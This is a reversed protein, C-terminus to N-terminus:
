YHSVLEVNVLVYSWLIYILHKLHKKCEFIKKCQVPFCLIHFLMDYFIGPIKRVKQCYKEWEQCNRVFHCHQRLLKSVKGWLNHLQVHSPRIDKLNSKLVIKHSALFNAPSIKYRYGLKKHHHMILLYNKSSSTDDLVFRHM